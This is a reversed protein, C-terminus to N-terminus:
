GSVASRKTTKIKLAAITAIAKATAGQDSRKKYSFSSKIRARGDGAATTGNASNAGRWDGSRSRPGYHLSSVQIASRGPIAQRAASRLCSGAIMLNEYECSSQLVQLLVYGTSRRSPRLDRQSATSSWRAITRQSRCVQTARLRPVASGRDLKRNAYMGACPLFQTELFSVAMGDHLQWLNKGFGATRATAGFYPGLKYRSAVLGEGDCERAM